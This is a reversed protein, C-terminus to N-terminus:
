NGVRGTIGHFVRWRAYQTRATFKNIGQSEAAKTVESLTATREKSLSTAIEWVQACLTGVSPRKVGNAEPRNKEIKPAVVPRAATETADPQPRSTLQSFAFNSFADPAPAPTDSEDEEEDDLDNGDPSSDYTGLATAGSSMENTVSLEAREEPVVNTLVAEGDATKYFGWKGEVKDLYNDVNELKPFARAFGRKAGSKDGYPVFTNATTMKIESSNLSAFRKCGM